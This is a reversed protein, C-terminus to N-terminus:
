VAPHRIRLRVSAAPGVWPAPARNKAMGAVGPIRHPSSRGRSGFRRRIRSTAATSEGRAHVMSQAEPHLPCAWSFLFLRSSVSTLLDHRALHAAVRIKGGRGDYRVLIASPHHPAQEMAQAPPQDREHKQAGHRAQAGDEVGGLRLPLPVRRGRLGLGHARDLEHGARLPLQERLSLPQQLHQRLQRRHM